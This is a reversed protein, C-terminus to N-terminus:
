ADNADDSFQGILVQLIQVLIVHSPAIMEHSSYAGRKIKAGCLIKCKDYQWAM